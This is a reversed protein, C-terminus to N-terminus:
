CKSGTNGIKTSVSVEPNAIVLTNIFTTQRYDRLCTSGSVCNLEKSQIFSQIQSVTMSATDHFRADTIVNGPSFDAASSAIAPKPGALDFGVLFVAVLLVASAFSMGSVGARHCRGSM